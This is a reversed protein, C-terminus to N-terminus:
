PRPSPSGSTTPASSRRAVSAPFGSRRAARGTWGCSGSRSTTRPGGAVRADRPSRSCSAMRAGARRPRRTFAPNSLRRPPSSGDAPALWIESHRRNEGRRDVHSRVGRQPRRSLDRLRQRDGRPLLGRARRRAARTPRRRLRDRFHCDRRCPVTPSDHAGRSKASGPCDVAHAQPRRRGWGQHLPRAGIAPTKTGRTWFFSFPMRQDPHGEGGVGRPRPSHQSTAPGSPRGARIRAARVRSCSDFM